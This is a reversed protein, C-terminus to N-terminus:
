WRMPLESTVGYHEGNSCTHNTICSTGLQTFGAKCRSCNRSSGECSLCNEDCRHSSMLEEQAKPFLDWCVSNGGWFRGAHVGLTEPTVTVRPIGQCASFTPVGNKDSGETALPLCLSDCDTPLLVRLLPPWAKSESVETAWRSVGTSLFRSGM